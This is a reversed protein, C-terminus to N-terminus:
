TPAVSGALARVQEIPWVPTAGLKLAKPAKGDTVWRYWGAQEAPQDYEPIPERKDRRERSRRSAM